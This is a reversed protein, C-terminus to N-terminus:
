KWRLNLAPLHHARGKCFLPIETTNSIQHNSSIMLVILHILLLVTMILFLFLTLVEECHWGSVAGTTDMIVSQTRPRRWGYADSTM